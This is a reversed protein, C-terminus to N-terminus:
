STYLSPHFFLLKQIINWPLLLLSKWAPSVLDNQSTSFKQHRPPAWASLRLPLFGESPGAWIERRLLSTVWPFYSLDFIKASNWRLQCFAWPIFDLRSSTRSLSKFIIPLISLISSFPLKLGTSFDKSFFFFFSSLFLSFPSLLLFSISLSPQHLENLCFPNSNSIDIVSSGVITLDRILVLHDM